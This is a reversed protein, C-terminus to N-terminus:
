LKKGGKRTLNPANETLFDELTMGDGGLAKRLDVGREKVAKSINELTKARTAPDKMTFLGAMQRGDLGAVKDPSKKDVVYYQTTPEFFARIGGDRQYNMVASAPIVLAKGDLEPVQCIVNGSESIALINDNSIERVVCDATAAQHLKQMEKVATKPDDKIVEKRRTKDDYSEKVLETGKIKELPSGNKDMVPDGNKDAVKYERDPYIYAIVTNENLRRMDAEPIECYMDTRPIRSIFYGPKKYIKEDEYMKKNITVTTAGERDWGGKRSQRRERPRRGRRNDPNKEERATEKALEEKANNELEKLEPRTVWNDEYGTRAYEAASIIRIEASAKGSKVKEAYKSLYVKMLAADEASFAFQTKGDKVNLDPLRSFLLGEKKMDKEIERLVKRDESSVEIFALNDGKIDMLTKMDAKGHWQALRLTEMLKYIAMIIHVAEKGTYYIAKGGMELMQVSSNLVAGEDAM